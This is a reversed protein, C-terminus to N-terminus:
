IIKIYPKGYISRVLLHVISGVNLVYLLSHKESRKLQVTCGNRQGKCVLMMFLSLMQVSYHLYYFVEATWQGIGKVETLTRIVEDNSLKHLNELDLKGHQIHTVLNHIYNIKSKSLGFSKMQTDEIKSLKDVTWEDNIADTLQEFISAAVKVTIQQGIISRILSKLPNPRINIQLNGVKKILLALTADKKILQQVCDDQVHINWSTM